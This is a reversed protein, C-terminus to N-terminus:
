IKKWKSKIEEIQKDTLRPANDDLRHIGLLTELNSLRMNIEKLADLIEEM